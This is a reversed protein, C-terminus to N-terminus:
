IIPSLQTDARQAVILSETDTILQYIVGVIDDSPPIRSMADANNHNKGPKYEVEFNFQQLFIMWRTLCGGVDKHGTLSTLPNHDM